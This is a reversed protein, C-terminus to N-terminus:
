HHVHVCVQLHLCTYTGQEGLHVKPTEVATCVLRLRTKHRKNADFAVCPHKSWWWCSNVGSSIILSNTSGKSHGLTERPVTIPSDCCCLSIFVDRSVCLFVSAKPPWAIHGFKRIRDTTCSKGRVLFKWSWRNGKLILGKRWCILFFFSLSASYSKPPWLVFPIGFVGSCYLAYTTWDSSEFCNKAFM